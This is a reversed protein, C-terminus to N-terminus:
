EGRLVHAKSIGDEMILGILNGPKLSAVLKTNTAALVTQKENSGNKIRNLCSDSGDTIIDPFILPLFKKVSEYEEKSKREGDIFYSFAGDKDMRCRYAIEKEDSVCLMEVEAFDAAPHKENGRFLIESVLQGDREANTGWDFASLLNHRGSGEAGLIINFGSCLEIHVPEAFSKFGCISISKVYINKSEM